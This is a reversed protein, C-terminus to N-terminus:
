VESGDQPGDDILSSIIAQEYDVSNKDLSTLEKLKGDKLLVIEDCMDKALQMIHTSLIIIHDSKFSLLINKIGEAVVVDLSTLPEDLLMIKPKSILLTMIHLKSKMGSSYGKIIRNADKTDFSLCAFLEPINIDNGKAHVDCYFKIFEYGTLFEPLMPQAYILEVDDSQLIRQGEEDEILAQGKVDKYEGYISNFLTTKGAGNRGLLGYIKGQEFECSCGRLVIKEGFNKEINNLILKMKYERQIISGLFNYRYEYILM